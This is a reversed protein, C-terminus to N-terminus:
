FESAQKLRFTGTCKPQSWAMAELDLVYLDNYYETTNWGGFIIMKSGAFLTASHGFRATPSGSGEPGQYWTMTVPDLAHLDRYIATKEGKGGFIIIRSGALVASHNYRAAPPTGSVKPKLWRNANIDLIYTDNL